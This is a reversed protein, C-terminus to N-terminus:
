RRILILVLILIPLAIACFSKYRTFLTQKDPPAFTDVPPYDKTIRVPVFKVVTDAPCEVDVYITDQKIQLQVKISDPGSFLRPGKSSVVSEVETIFSFTDKPAIAEVRVLTDIVVSDAYAGTGYKEFCKQYTCCGSSIAILLLLFFTSRM